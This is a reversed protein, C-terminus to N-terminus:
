AQGGMFAAPIGGPGEADSPFVDTDEAGETYPNFGARDLAAEVVKRAAEPSDAEVNALVRVMALYLTM